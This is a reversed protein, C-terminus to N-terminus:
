RGLVEREAIQLRLRDALLRFLRVLEHRDTPELASLLDTLFARRLARLEAVAERGAATLVVGISRRDPVGVHREVLGKAVLRDVLRSVTSEDLGVRGALERLRPEGEAELVLLARMQGLSLQGPLRGQLGALLRRDLYTRGLVEWCEALEDVLETTAVFCTYLLQQQRCCDLTPAHATM